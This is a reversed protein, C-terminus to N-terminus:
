GREIIEIILSILLSPYIDKLLEKASLSKNRPSNLVYDKSYGDNTRYNLGTERRLYIAM